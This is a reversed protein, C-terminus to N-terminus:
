SNLQTLKTTKLTLCSKICKGLEYKRKKLQLGHAYRDALTDVGKAGGHLIHTPQLTRLLKELQTYTSNDTLKRSGSILIKM